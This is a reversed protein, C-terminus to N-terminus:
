AIIENYRSFLRVKALVYKDRNNRLDRIKAASIEGPKQQHLILKTFRTETLLTFRDSKLAKELIRHTGTWTVYDSNDKRREVALPLNTIGRNPYAKLLAEKVVTHRISCDYQDSHVNLLTKAEDLLEDLNEIPNEKREEADPVAQPIILASM